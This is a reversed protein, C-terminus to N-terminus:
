SKTVSLAARSGSCHKIHTKASSVKVTYSETCKLEEGRRENGVKQGARQIERMRDGNVKNPIDQETDIVWKRGRAKMHAYHSRQFALHCVGHVTFLAAWVCLGHLCYVILLWCLKKKTKHQLHFTFFTLQIRTFIIKLTDSNAHKWLFKEVWQAHCLELVNIHRQQPYAMWSKEGKEATLLIAKEKCERSVHCSFTTVTDRFCCILANM